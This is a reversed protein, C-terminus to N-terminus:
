DKRCLLLQLYPAGTENEYYTSNTEPLDFAHAHGGGSLTSQTGPQMWHSHNGGLDTYFSDNVDQTMSIPYYGTGSNNRGNGWDVIEDLNGNSYWSQWRHGWNKMSWVHRHEGGGSTRQDPLDFTHTHAGDTTSSWSDPDFRHRHRLIEQDQLEQGATWGPVGGAPLTVAVRGRGPGFASWGTPCADLDFYLLTGSPLSSGLPAYNDSLDSLLETENDYCADAVREELGGRDLSITLDGAIGGGVLPYGTDVMTITGEFVEQCSVQGDAAVAQIAQDSPCAGTIRRQILDSDV